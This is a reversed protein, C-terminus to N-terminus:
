NANYLTMYNMFKEEIQKRIVEQKNNTTIRFIEQLTYLNIQKENSIDGAFKPDLSFYYDLELYMKQSLIDILNNAKETAGANYYASIVSLLTSNYPIKTDPFLQMCKDLVLLASDKKGEVILKDALRGFSSRLNSFMRINNEDLYIDKEIGGWRFKNMMNDFMVESDVEGEFFRDKQAEVPVLQYTLGDVKFYKQLNYYKSSSVTMAWYVPREWNNTALIDLLMLGDKYLYSQGIGWQMENVIRNKNKESIIGKKVIEDPNILLKFQKTPIYNILENEVFPSNIKAKSDDSAIFDIVQKVDVAQGVREIMPLVDRNGNHVKDQTLTFPLSESEYAKRSMQEIYWSARLYSMNCVRIDTRIGEVEQAYWLPFTDNDGNTFLIANQKCSNLYNYALDRATYRGSRDHDNWNESAMIVPVCLITILVVAIASILTPIKKTIFEYLAAVGLGIWITFAYFSGAFAYDRERPQLPYQNLYVVIAIGTLIFLMMVVTFDKKSKKYHYFLGALGLLLPFMFYTNRAANNKLHDPIINQNGLRANDIFSIGSLWNGKLINGHGQIDNQRGAFNWMFYRFYMHGLQYKFLFELNDGFTVTTRKETKGMSTVPIERGSIHVWRKYEKIHSPDPSYMRPFLNTFRSDYEVEIKHDAVVYKGEKKIYVPKTQKNETMPADFSQGYVLPRDGYQERNLYYLLDFVNDPNNQDMPPDAASRIVIMAYSSYGIMIVTFGILITNLVVKGKKQTYKIGWIILGILVTLYFLFGSNYPLKFGNIFLLEFWSAITIVGPIIIYMVTGLIIGSVILAAFVGKKSVEYKKFYYVFVIAPIALLNLLHVGISLGMLYAILILWRNAYKSGAENEWKLIAWFVVSTFLSSTAYVEAEVASFWFTDSFTYSLAGVLGTGIIVIIKSLNIEENKSAIIKKALHTITWFLFLITFASAMASLVNMMKAANAPSGAFLTFFRGLIMFFPAGPPHGVELKFATAIFEGCDWFSATPEITLLYVIAAVLFTLWGFVINYFRFSKM